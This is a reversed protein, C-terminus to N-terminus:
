LGGNYYEDFEKVLDSIVPQEIPDGDTLWEYIENVRAAQWSKDDSGDWANYIQQALLERQQRDM